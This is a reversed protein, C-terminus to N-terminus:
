PALLYSTLTGQCNRLVKGNGFVEAKRMLWSLRHRILGNLPNNIEYICRKIHNETGEVDRIERLGIM